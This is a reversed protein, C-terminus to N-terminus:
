PDLGARRVLAKYRPEDHLSDYLPEWKIKFCGPFGDFTKEILDLAKAKKERAVCEREMTEKSVRPVPKAAIRPDVVPM